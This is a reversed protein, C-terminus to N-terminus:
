QLSLVILFVKRGSTLYKSVNMFYSYNNKCESTPIIQCAHNAPEFMQFYHLHSFSLNDEVCFHGKVKANYIQKRVRM